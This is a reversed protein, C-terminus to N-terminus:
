YQTQQQPQLYRAKMSSITALNEDNSVTQIVSERSRSQILKNKRKIIEKLEGTAEIFSKISKKLTNTYIGEEKIIEYAREVQRLKKQELEKAHEILEEYAQAQIRTIGEDAQIIEKREKDNSLRKRALHHQHDAEWIERYNDGELLFEKEYIDAEVFGIVAELEEENALAINIDARKLILKQEALKILDDIESRYKDTLEDIDEQPQLKTVKYFLRHVLSTDAKVSRAIQNATKYLMNIKEELTTTQTM